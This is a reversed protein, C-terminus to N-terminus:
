AQLRLVLAMAEMAIGHSFHLPMAILTQSFTTRGKQRSSVNAHMLDTCRPIEAAPFGRVIDFRQAVHPMLQHM